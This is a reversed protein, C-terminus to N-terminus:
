AEPNDVTKGSNSRAQEDVRCDKSKRKPMNREELPQLYIPRLTLCFEHAKSIIRLRIEQGARRGRCHMIRQHKRKRMRDSTPHERGCMEASTFFRVYEIKISFSVISVYTIYNPVSISISLNSGRLPLGLYGRERAKKGFITMNYQTIFISAGSDSISLQDIAPTEKDRM